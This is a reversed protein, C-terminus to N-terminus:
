APLVVSVTGGTRVQGPSGGGWWGGMLWASWQRCGGGSPAIRRDDGSEFELARKRVLVSGWSWMRGSSEMQPLPNLTQYRSFARLHSWPLLRRASNFTFHSHVCWCLVIGPVRRGWLPLMPLPSFRPLYLPVKAELNERWSLGAEQGKGTRMRLIDLLLKVRSCYDGKQSYLETSIKKIGWQDQCVKIRM